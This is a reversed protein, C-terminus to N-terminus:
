AVQAANPSAPTSLGVQVLDDIIAQLSEEDLRFQTDEEMSIAPAVPAVDETDKAQAICSYPVAHCAHFPM